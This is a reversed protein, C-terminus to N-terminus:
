NYLTTEHKNSLPAKINCMSCIARKFNFRRRLRQILTQKMNMYIINMVMPVSSLQVKQNSKVPLQRAFMQVSYYIHAEPGHPKVSHENKLIIKFHLRINAMM